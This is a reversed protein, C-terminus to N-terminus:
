GQIAPPKDHCGCSGCDVELGLKLGTRTEKDPIKVFSIRCLGENECLAGCRPCCLQISDPIELFGEEGTIDRTNIKTIAM